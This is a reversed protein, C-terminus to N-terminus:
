LSYFKEKNRVMGAFPFYLFIQSAQRHLFIFNIYLLFTIGEVKHEFKIGTGTRINVFVMVM